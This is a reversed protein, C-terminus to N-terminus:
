LLKSLAGMLKLYTAPSGAAGKGKPGIQAEIVSVGAVRGAKYEALYKAATNEKLGTLKCIESSLFTKALAADMTTTKVQDEIKSQLVGLFTHARGNATLLDPQVFFRYPRVLYRIRPHLPLVSPGTTGPHSLDLGIRPSYYIKPTTRKPPDVAKLYLCTPPSEKPDDSLFASINGEWKQEVLEEISSAGSVSLIQDVLLSPGSIVKGGPGLQRLTRILIGGKLLQKPSPVSIKSDATGTSASPVTESDQVKAPAFRQALAPLLPGGFTLDMGKRSGTRYATLSTASRTSDESRRPARHFYWRGSLKQEESGHTFPDEHITEIQLYFEAELVKFETEKGDAKRAVFHFDHLLAQSINRLRITIEEATEVSSFDILRAFEPLALQAADNSSASQSNSSSSAQGSTSSSADPDQKTKKVFIPFLKADSNPEAKRKQSSM